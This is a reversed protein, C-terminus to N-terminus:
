GAVEMPQEIRRVVEGGIVQVLEGDILGLQDAVLLKVPQEGSEEVVWRCAIVAGARVRWFWTRATVVGLSGQGAIEIVGYEGTLSAAGRDGTASSSGRDGTASSSGSDGTASSSGRYGTASSSGSDGTASSSGSSGTASSSGSSNQQVWAVRGDLTAHLAKDWDGYLLVEAEGIVKAKGGMDIVDAPSAAFVIWRGRYDPEKGDGLNVGWPWGFLGGSECDQRGAQERDIEAKPCIVRGSQPWQFEGFGRGDQDVCKVLLVKDGDHTWQHVPIPRQEPM